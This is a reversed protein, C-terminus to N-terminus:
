PTRRPRRSPASGRIARAPSEPSPPPPTITGAMRDVVYGQDVLRNYTAKGIGIIHGTEENLILGRQVLPSVEQAARGSGGAAGGREIGVAPTRYEQQQQQQQQLAGRQQWAAPAPQKAAGRGGAPVLAEAEEAANGLQQRVQRKADALAEHMSRHQQLFNWARAGLLGACLALSAENMTTSLYVSTLGVLQLAVRLMTNVKRNGTNNYYYTLALGSLGSMALYALTVPHRLLQHASPLWTGFLWRMSALFSSGFLATGAFLKGKHPVRRYMFLLLILSSLAVFGLTGGTLRFPTSESLGPAYWFLWAGLLAAVVRGTSLEQRRELQCAHKEGGAPWARPPKAVAVFTSGYPRLPVTCAPSDRLWHAMGCWARDKRDYAARVEAMSAGTYVTFDQQGPCTVEVAANTFLLPLASLRPPGPFEEAQIMTGDTLRIVELLGRLPEGGAAARELLSAREGSVAAAAATALTVLLTARWPTHRRTM